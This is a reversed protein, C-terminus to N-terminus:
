ISVGDLFENLSVEAPINLKRRIQTRTYEIGKDSKSLLVGIEKTTFQNYVLLLVQMEHENLVESFHTNFQQFRAIDNDKFAAIVALEAYNSFFADINVKAKKFRSKQEKMLVHQELEDMFNEIQKKLVAIKNINGMIEQLREEGQRLNEQLKQQEILSQQLLHNKIIIEAEKLHKDKQSNKYYLIFVVTLLVIILGVLILLYNQNRIRTSKLENETKLLKLEKALESKKMLLMLDGMTQDSSEKKLSDKYLIVKKLQESSAVYDGSNLYYGALLDYYAVALYYNGGSKFEDKTRQIEELSSITKGETFLAAKNLLVGMYASLGAISGRFQNVMNKLRAMDKFQLYFELKLENFFQEYVLNENALYRQASDINQNFAAQEGKLASLKARNLYYLFSLGDSSGLRVRDFISDAEAFQEMDLYAVGINLYNKWYNDDKKGMLEMSKRAQLFYDLATKTYGKQMYIAGLNTNLGAIDAASGLQEAMRLGKLWSEEAKNFQALAYLLRGREFYLFVFGSSDEREALIKEIKDSTKLAEEFRGMGALKYMTDILPNRNFVKTTDSNTKQTSEGCSFLGLFCVWSILAIFFSKVVHKPYM